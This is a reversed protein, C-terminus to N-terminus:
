ATTKRRPLGNRRLGAERRESETMGAATSRYTGTEPDAHGIDARGPGAHVWARDGVGNIRIAHTVIGYRVAALANVDPREEAARGSLTM